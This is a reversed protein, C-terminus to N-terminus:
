VGQIAEIIHNLEEKTPKINFRIVIDFELLINFKSNKITKIDLEKYYNKYFSIMKNLNNKM